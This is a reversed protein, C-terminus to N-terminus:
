MQEVTGIGLLYLGNKIVQGVAITLMLRFNKVDEEAKLIQHKQYFLNFAQALEFLYNCLINPSFKECAEAVVEPFKALLRLLNNEEPNIIGNDWQKITPNTTGAKKLLSQCRVFTYQLYPGSNGEFNISEELNFEINKGIGNKLFAYKIAGAGVTEAVSKEIKTKTTEQIKNWAKKHAEDLLWVGTVINGTRSSMKGEPLRVMGHTLHYTKKCLDPNIIELAKLVVKFYEKIESGTLIISLDYPFDHHKIIALGLDKAEYTPLGLTNIFVRTHLGYKEGKFIVAGKSETFINKKLFQKVIELGKKGVEQEFYYFDFKTGLRSYIQEFYDLSWQRGREYLNKITPDLDYIKKNLLTIETKAQKDTEYSTTGLAYASGMFNIREELTKKSLQELTLKEKQMKQQMGWIAKAVHLGVDGQYNARKLIAGQSEFLRALSEGVINSYLHGVHFEKFPNPDTFEVIIKKSKLASSNGYKNASKKIENLEELLYKKSLWFNIFGPKLVEVKELIDNKNINKAIEQALVLPTKNLQKSCKLAVSTSYDGHEPNTPHQLEAKEKIGTKRLAENVVESIKDKIM